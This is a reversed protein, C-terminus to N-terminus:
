QHIATPQGAPTIDDRDGPQFDGPGPEFRHPKPGRHQWRGPAAIPECWCDPSQIHPQANRIAPIALDTFSPFPASEIDDRWVIFLLDLFDPETM